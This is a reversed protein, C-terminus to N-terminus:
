ANLEGVETSNIRDKIISVYESKNEFGISKRRLGMAAILTTGSGAFCDLVTGGEPCNAKIIRTMIEIPKQTPHNIRETHKDDVCPIRWIASPLKFKYEKGKYERIHEEHRELRISESDEYPNDTKSYYLICEPKRGWLGGGAGQITDWTLWDKYIFGAQELEISLFRLMRNIGFLYISGTDKLVRHCDKIWAKSWEAYEKGNGISDWDAKDMNYPPDVCVLDITKDHLTKLGDFADIWQINPQYQERESIRARELEREEQLRNWEQYEKDNMVPRYQISNIGKMEIYNSIERYQKSIEDDSPINSFSQIRTRFEKKADFDFPQPEFVQFERGNKIETKGSDEMNYLTTNHLATDHQCMTKFAKQYQSAKEAFKAVTEAINEQNVEYWEPIAEIVAKVRKVAAETQKVTWESELMVKVLSLWTNEPSCHISVLQKYYEDPNFTSACADVKCFVKFAKQKDVETTRVLGAKECYANLSLGWKGKEVLDCINKGQEVRSLEGQTNDLRLSFLAEMDDMEKVWCPLTKIDAKKAAELRNHGSIVQYGDNLPRVRLAYEQSFFGQKILTEAINDIVDARQIIRPNQPHPTIQNIAIEKLEATQM